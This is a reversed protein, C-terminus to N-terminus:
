PGRAPDEARRAARELRDRRLARGRSGPRAGLGGAVGEQARLRQPRGHLPATTAGGRPDEMEGLLECLQWRADEHAGLLAERALTLALAPHEGLLEQCHQAESDAALILLLDSARQPSQIAEGFAAYLTSCRVDLEEADRRGAAYWERLKLVHEVLDAEEEVVVDTVGDFSEIDRRHEEVQRQEYPGQEHIKTGTLAPM